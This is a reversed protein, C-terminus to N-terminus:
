YSSKENVSASISPLFIEELKELGMNLLRTTSKCGSAKKLRLIRKDETSKVARYGYFKTKKKM